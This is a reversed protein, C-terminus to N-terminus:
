KRASIVGGGFGLSFLQNHRISNIPIRDVEMAGAAPIIVPVCFAASEAREDCVAVVFEVCFTAELAFAAATTVKLLSALDRPALEPSLRDTSAEKSFCPESLM